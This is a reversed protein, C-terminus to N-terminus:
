PSPSEHMMADSPTPSEHVMADTPTPSAHTMESPAGTPSEHVM